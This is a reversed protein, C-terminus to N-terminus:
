VVDHRRIEFPIKGDPRAPGFEAGLFRLWRQTGAKMVKSPNVTGHIVAYDELMAEVAQRSHRIFVFENGELAEGSWMWLYARDSCFSPPILGWICVIKEDKLGFFVEGSEALCDIMTQHDAEPIGALVQMAVFRDTRAIHVSM